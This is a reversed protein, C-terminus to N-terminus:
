LSKCVRFQTLSNQLSKTHKEKEKWKQEKIEKRMEKELTKKQFNILDM